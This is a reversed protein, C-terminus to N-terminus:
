KEFTQLIVQEKIILLGIVAVSVVGPSSERAGDQIESFSVASFLFKYRSQRLEHYM